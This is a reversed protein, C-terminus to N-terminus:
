TQYREHNFHDHPFAYPYGPTATEFPTEAPTQAHLTTLLLFCTLHAGMARAAACPLLRFARRSSSNKM